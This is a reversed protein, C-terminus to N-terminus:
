PASPSCSARGAGECIAEKQRRSLQKIAYERQQATSRDPQCECYVITKPSDSRFFKARKKPHQLHEEFRVDAARAIGTYYRGKETEIIYVHYTTGANTDPNNEEAM